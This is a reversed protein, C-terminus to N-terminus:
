VFNRRWQPTLKLSWHDHVLGYESQEDSYNPNKWMPIPMLMHLNLVKGKATQHESVKALKVEGFGV